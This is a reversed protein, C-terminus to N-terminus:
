DTSPREARDVVVAFVPVKTSELSLGLQEQLAVFVSPTDGSADPVAALKEPTWDLEFDFGGKLGTRDVVVGMVERSLRKALSDMTVNTATLHRGNSHSESGKDPHRAPELKAGKKEVVLAYGSMQRQERHAMLQFRDVLLSEILEPLRSPRQAAFEAPIKANIDYRDSDLWKPGGLVESMDVAYALSMLRRVPVNHARFLGQDSDIDQGDDTQSMRISAVDFAPRKEQALLLFATAILLVTAKM